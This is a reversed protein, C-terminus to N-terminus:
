RSMPKTFSSSFSMTHCLDFGNVPSTSMENLACSPISALMLSSAETLAPRPTFTFANSTTVALASTVNLALADTSHGFFLGDFAPTLM